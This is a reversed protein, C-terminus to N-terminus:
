CAIKKDSYIRAYCDKCLQGAGEVYYERSDVPTDKRINVIKGCNPMVCKELESEKNTM